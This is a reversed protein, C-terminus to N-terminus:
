ARRRRRAYWAGAVIDLIYHNATVIVSLSMAVPVAAGAIRLAVIRSQTAVATGVLMNWGFHLSPMAAYQNVLGGPELERYASAYKSLTDVFEADALRPPAVPYALFGALGIAGSIVFANRYTRYTDPRFLYLWVAVLIILPWHGWIYVWNSMSALTERKAVVAMTPEAYMRLSREADAIARAHDIATTTSGQTLGRVVFYLAYAAVVLAAETILGRIRFRERGNYLLAFFVGAVAIWPAWLYATGMAADYRAPAGADRRAACRATTGHSASGGANMMVRTISTPSLRRASTNAPFGVISRRRTVYHPSARRGPSSFTIGSSM